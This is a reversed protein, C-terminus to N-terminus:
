SAPTPILWAYTAFLQSMPSETLLANHIAFYYSFAIFITAWTDDLVAKLRLHNIEPM